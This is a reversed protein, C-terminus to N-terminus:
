AGLASKAATLQALGEDLATNIAGQVIADAIGGFVPMRGLYRAAVADLETKVVDEVWGAAKMLEGRAPEPQAEIATRMNSLANTLGASPSAIPPTM